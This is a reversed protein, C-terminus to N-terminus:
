DLSDKGRGEKGTKAWCEGPLNRNLRSNRSSNNSSSHSGRVPLGRFTINNNNNPNTENQISDPNRLINSNNFRWLIRPIRSRLLRWVWRLFFRIRPCLTRRRRRLFILLLDGEMRRRRYIRRFGRHHDQRIHNSNNNNNSNNNSISRPAPLLRPRYDPLYCVPRCLTIFRSFLSLTCSIPAEM